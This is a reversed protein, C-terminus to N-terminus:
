PPSLKSVKIPQSVAAEGLVLNNVELGRPKVKSNFYKATREQYRSVKLHISDRLEEVLDCNLRLGTSSEEANFHQLRASDLTVEVLLVAETGYAMKFPNKGTLNRPTTRDSWLVNPLEDVWLRNAEALRKKIGQLIAKNTIKVQDNYQPYAVSAKFHQIKLQEFTKEIESGVFQTGNDIVIM